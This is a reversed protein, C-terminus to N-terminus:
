DRQQYSPLCSFLSKANDKQKFQMMLNHCQPNIIICYLVSISHDVTQVNILTNPTLTTVALTITCIDTCIDPIADCQTKEFIYM